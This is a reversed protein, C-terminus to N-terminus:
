SLGLRSDKLPDRLIRILDQTNELWVRFDNAFPFGALRVLEAVQNFHLLGFVLDDRVIFHEGFTGVIGFQQNGCYFLVLTLEPM